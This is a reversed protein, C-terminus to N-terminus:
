TLLLNLLQLEPPVDSLLVPTGDMRSWSAKELVGWAYTKTPEPNYVWAGNYVEHDGHCMSRVWEKFEGQPIDILWMGAYFVKVDKM